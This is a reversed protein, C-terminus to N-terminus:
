RLQITRDPTQAANGAADRAIVHFSRSGTGVAFSWTYSDGSRVCTVGPTNNDCPVTLSNRAWYLATDVVRVDDTATARITVTSNAPLVAGAPPSTVVVTPPTTDRGPGPGPGPGPGGGDARGLRLYMFQVSNQNAISGTLPNVCACDRPRGEGCSVTQDQFTKHGCGNLYTMPDKCLYEHDLGFAHAIEQAAVECLSTPNSIVQEFIYVIANEILSCNRTFPAVGAVNAPLGILQPRGSIVAEFHSENGPNVDTVEVNFRAFEDKVCSLFQSWAADGRSYAPLTTASRVISSSNTRSNEPGRSYSGGNRNLFITRRLPAALTGAPLAITGTVEGAMEDDIVQYSGRLAAPDVSLEFDIGETGEDGPSRVEGVCGFAISTAVLIGSGLLTQRM